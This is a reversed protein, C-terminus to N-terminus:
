ALRHQQVVFFSNNDLTASKEGFHGSKYSLSTLNWMIIVTNNKTRTHSILNTENKNRKNTKVLSFKLSHNTRKIKSM